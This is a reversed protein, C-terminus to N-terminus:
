PIVMGRAVAGDPRSTDTARITALADETKINAPLTNRIQVLVGEIREVAWEEGNLAATCLHAFQIEGHSVAFTRLNEIETRLTDTM